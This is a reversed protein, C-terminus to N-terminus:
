CSALLADILQERQEPTIIDPTGGVDIWFPSDDDPTREAAWWAEAPDKPREPGESPTHATMLAVLTPYDIEGHELSEMLSRVTTGTNTTDMAEAM